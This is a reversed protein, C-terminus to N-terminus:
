CVGVSEAKVGKESASISANYTIVDPTRSNKLLVEFLGLAREAKAGKECASIPASYTIVNPTLWQKQLM